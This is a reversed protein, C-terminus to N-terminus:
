VCHLQIAGTSVLSARSLRKSKGGGAYAEAIASFSGRCSLKARHLVQYHAHRPGFIIHHGKATRRMKPTTRAHM